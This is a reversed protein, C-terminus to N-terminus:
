RSSWIRKRKSSVSNTRYQRSHRSGTHFEHVTAIFSNGALPKLPEDLHLFFARGQRLEEPLMNFYSAAAFFVVDIDDLATATSGSLLTTGSFSRDRLGDKAVTITSCDLENLLEGLEM